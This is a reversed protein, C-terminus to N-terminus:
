NFVCCSCFTLVCICFANVIILLAIVILGDNEYGMVAEILLIGILAVIETILAVNYRLRQPESQSFYEQIIKKWQERM